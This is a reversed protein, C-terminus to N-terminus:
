GDAVQQRSSGTLASVNPSIVNALTFAAAPGTRKNWNGATIQANYQENVLRQGIVSM